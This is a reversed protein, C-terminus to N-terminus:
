DERSLSTPSLDELVIPLAPYLGGNSKSSLFQTHSSFLYSNSSFRWIISYEGEPSM